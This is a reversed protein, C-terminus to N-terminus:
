RFEGFAPLGYKGQIKVLYGKDLLRQCSSQVTRYNAGVRDAIEQPSLAERAIAARIQFSLNASKALDPDSLLDYEEFYIKGDEFRLKFGIPLSLADGNCKRHFMGFAIGNAEEETRRIEWVSRALNQVFVSGFPTTRNQAQGAKSVHSLILKTCPIGHLASYFRAVDGSSETEGAVAPAISDVVVLGIQNRSVDEMIQDIEDCLGRAFSRYHLDPIPIQRGACLSALRDRQEEKTTEWDCYLVNKRETPTIGGPLAHGCTVALAMALATLSKGSGGDAYFISAENEFLFRGLLQKPKETAKLKALNVTPEGARIDEIIRDALYEITEAWPFTPIAQKLTEALDKKSRAVLLNLIGRHLNNKLNSYLSYFQLECYFGNGDERQYRASVGIAHDDWVAEWTRNHRVIEPQIM